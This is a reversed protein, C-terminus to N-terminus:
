CHFTTNPYMNRISFEYVASNKKYSNDYLNVTKNLLSASIGGHLRNTNVVKFKSVYDLIAYATKYAGEKSMGYNIKFSLDVNDDPIQIKTKEIDTRFWNLIHEGDGGDDNNYKSVDLYFAMDKSICVNKKNKIKSFVYDYSAYDRCIIYIDDNFTDFCEDVGMITHPLIIIKNNKNLNNKLFNKCNGYISNFNGGGGYMLIQNTYSCKANDIDYNLNLKDFIQYTGAAILADGGNGPNPIYKFNTDGFSKLFDIMNLENPSAGNNNCFDHLSIHM